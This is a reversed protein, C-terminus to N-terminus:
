RMECVLEEASLSETEYYTVDTGWFYMCMYLFADVSHDDVKDVVEKVEHGDRVQKFHYNQCQRILNVCRPSIFISPKGDAQVKLHRNAVQWSLEPRKDALTSALGHRELEARTQAEHDSITTELYNGRIAHCIVGQELHEQERQRINAVHHEILTEAQYYEDYLYLINDPSLAGWLCVFPNRFGLDLSRVRRWDVPIPPFKRLVHIQEDFEKLVAGELITFLGYVRRDIEDEGYLAVLEDKYEQPIFPNMFLSVRWSERQGPANNQDIEYYPWTKGLLPTMSLCVQGRRDLVRALCEMYLGKDKPEEDLLIDDVSAAQFSERGQEYTKFWTVSENAWTVMSPINKAKNAWAIRQIETPTTLEKYKPWLTQGIM